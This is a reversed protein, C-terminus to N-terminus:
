HPIVLVRKCGLHGHSSCSLISEKAPDTTVSPSIAELEFLPSKPQIYPLCRKCRPHHHVLVPQGSLHYTGWVQLCGLDPHIPMQGLQSHGQESCSIQDLHGKLTEGLEFWGIIDMFPM